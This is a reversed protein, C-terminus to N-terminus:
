RELCGRPAGRRPLLACGPTAHRPTAVFMGAPGGRGAPPSAGKDLQRKNERLLDAPTKRPKFLWSM